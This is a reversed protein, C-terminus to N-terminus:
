LELPSWELCFQSKTNEYGPCRTWLASRIEQTSSVAFLGSFISISGFVSVASWHPRWKLANTYTATTAVTAYIMVKVKAEVVLLPMERQESRMFAQNMSLRKNTLRHEKNRFVSDFDGQEWSVEHGGKCACYVSTSTWLLSLPTAWSFCKAAGSLDKRQCIASSGLGPLTWYRSSLLM